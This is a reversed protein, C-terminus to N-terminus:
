NYILGKTKLVYLRTMLEQQGSTKDIIFGPKRREKKEFDL